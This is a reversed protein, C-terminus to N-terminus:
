SPKLALNNMKALVNKFGDIIEVTEKADLVLRSTTGSADFLELMAQKIGDVEILYITWNGNVMYSKGAM